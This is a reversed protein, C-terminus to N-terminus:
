KEDTEEEEKEKPIVRVTVEVIDGVKGLTGPLSSFSPREIEGEQAGDVQTLVRRDARDLARDAWAIETRCDRKVDLRIMDRLEVIKGIM